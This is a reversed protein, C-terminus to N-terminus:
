GMSVSKQSLDTNYGDTFGKKFSKSKYNYSVKTSKPRAPGLRKFLEKDPKVMLDYKKTQDNLRKELGLIFGHIYNRKLFSTLKRNRAVGTKLYYNNLYKKTRYQIIKVALFYINKALEVDNSYGYFNYQFHKNPYFSGTRVFLVKFNDAIVNALRQKLLSLKQCRELVGYEVARQQDQISSKKIGYKVMLKQALLFATQTEEDQNSDKAIDLLGKVKNIIKQNASYKM